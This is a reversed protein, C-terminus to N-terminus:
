PQEVPAQIQVSGAREFQLTVSIIDGASLDQRLQILMIHLGGPKFEVQSNAAIPINEQQSMRMNGDADMSTMHLEVHEASETDASLLTDSQSTPNDIVFYVASNGGSLGPRAWANEITLQQAQENSQNACGTLALLIVLLNIIRARTRM